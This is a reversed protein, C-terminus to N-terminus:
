ISRLIRKTYVRVIIGAHIAVGHLIDSAKGIAPAGSPVTFGKGGSIRPCRTKATPKTLSIKVDFKMMM